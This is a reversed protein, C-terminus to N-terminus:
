PHDWGLNQVLNHNLVLENYPIPYYYKYDDWERTINSLWVITGSTGNSLRVQTNDILFYYVGSVKTTPITSVFSVDPKGDQNLDYLTNMAPVYIGTYTMQLLNGAKWRFLDYYRFGELALEIGRERRIELLAPDSINPFYNQQLYTDVTTPLATNTIGARTRLLKITNNWDDGTFTGLEAR